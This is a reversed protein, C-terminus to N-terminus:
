IFVAMRPAALVVLAALAPCPLAPCPLVYPIYIRSTIHYIMDIM